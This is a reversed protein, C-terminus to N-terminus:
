FGGLGTTRIQDLEEASMLGSQYLNFYEQSVSANFILLDDSNITVPIGYDFLTRIPHSTYNKSIKLMVNSTPCVNLQIKHRALWNMIQPSRAAAIGHQIQDLELEEAYRMVADPGGFEGIHAKLTLGKAKAKRCVQKLQDLTYVNEYNCIDIGRFWNADLVEDLTELEELFYGLALDPLFRSEPAFRQHLADLTASYAQISGGHAYIEDMACSLALVQINDQAAQVFAAEVRIIYGSKDPFHCNVNRKLWGNMETLSDFPASPPMITVGLKKQIYAVSGGRGIHSHLDSKPIKQMEDMSGSELAQIFKDNVM